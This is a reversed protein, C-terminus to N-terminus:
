SPVALPKFSETHAGDKQNGVMSERTRAKSASEQIASLSIPSM